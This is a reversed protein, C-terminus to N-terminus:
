ASDTMASRSLAMCEDITQEGDYLKGYVLRHSEPVNREKGAPRFIRMLISAVEPGSMRIIGIGGTGPATAIAAITDHLSM